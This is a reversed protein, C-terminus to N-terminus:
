TEGGWAAVLALGAGLCTRQRFEGLADAVSPTTSEVGADRRRHKGKMLRIRRVRSRAREPQVKGESDM